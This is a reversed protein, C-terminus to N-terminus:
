KEVYDNQLEIQVSNGGFTLEHIIVFRHVFDTKNANFRYLSEESNRMRQCTSENDIHAAVM